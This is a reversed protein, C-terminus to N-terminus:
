EDGVWFLGTCQRGKEDTFKEFRHRGTVLYKRVTLNETIVRDGRADLLNTDYNKVLLGEWNLVASMAEGDKSLSLGNEDFVFGNSTVVKNVGDSNINTITISLDAATQQLKSYQEKLLEVNDELTSTSNSVTNKIGDVDLQMQTIKETSDDVKTITDEIKGNMKDALRKVELVDNKISSSYSLETSTEKIESASLIIQYNDDNSLDGGLYVIKKTMIYAELENDWIDLFKVKQGLKISLKNKINQTTMNFILYSFGSIREFLAQIVDYRKDLESETDQPDLIYNNDIRFEVPNEPIKEPWKVNDEVDGRGLVMVNVPNSKEKETTLSSWDDAIHVTDEFWKFYFKDNKDTILFSLSSQEIQCMVERNSPNEGVYPEEELVLDSHPFDSDDYEVECDDFISNRWEKLTCPFTHKSSDYPKDLKYKIDYCELKINVREQVPSVDHIYFSGHVTKIWSEKLTSYENSDNLMQITAKGLECTGVINGDSNITTEHEFSQIDSENYEIYNM